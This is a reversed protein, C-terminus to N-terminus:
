LLRRFLHARPRNANGVLDQLHWVPRDDRLTIHQACSGAARYWGTVISEGENYRVSNIRSM